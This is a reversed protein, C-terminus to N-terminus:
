QTIANKTKAYNITGAKCVFKPFVATRTKQVFPKASSISANPVLKAFLLPIKAIPPYVSVLKPTSTMSKSVLRQARANPHAPATQIVSAEVYGEEVVMSNAFSLSKASSMLIMARNALKRGVM